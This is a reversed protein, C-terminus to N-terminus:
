HTSCNECVEIVVTKELDITAGSFRPLKTQMLIL